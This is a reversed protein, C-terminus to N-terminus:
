FYLELSSAFTRQITSIIRPNLNKLSASVMYIVRCEGYFLFIYTARCLFVNVLVAPIFPACVYPKFIYCLAAMTFIRVTKKNLFLEFIHARVHM